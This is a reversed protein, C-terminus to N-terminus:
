GYTAKKVRLCFTLTKYLSFFLFLIFLKFCTLLLKWCLVNKFINLLNMLRKDFTM